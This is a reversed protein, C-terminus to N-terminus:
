GDDNEKILKNTVYNSLDDILKWGEVEAVPVFIDWREGVTPYSVPEPFINGFKHRMIYFTNDNADWIAKTANRCAGIYVQGHKLLDKAIMGDAYAAEMQAETTPPPNFCRMHIHAAEHSWVFERQEKDLTDWQEQSIKAPKNM